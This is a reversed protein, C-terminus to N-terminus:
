RHFAVWTSKALFGAICRITRMDSLKESLNSALDTYPVPDLYVDTIIEPPSSHIIIRCLGCLLIQDLPQIMKGEMSGESKDSEKGGRQEFTL